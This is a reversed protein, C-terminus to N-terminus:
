SITPIRCKPFSIQHPSISLSDVRIHASDPCPSPRNPVVESMLPPPSRESFHHFHTMKQLSIHHPPPFACVSVQLNPTPETQPPRHVQSRTRIRDPVQEWCVCLLLLPTRHFHIHSSKPVVFYQTDNERGWNTREERSHSFSLVCGRALACRAAPSVVCPPLIHVADCM